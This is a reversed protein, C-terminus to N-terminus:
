VPVRDLRSSPAGALTSPTVRVGHAALDAVLADALAVFAAGDEAGGYVYFDPRVIMAAWGRADLFAGIRGEVERGCGPRDSRTLTVYRTAVGALANRAAQDLLAEADLDCSLVVFGSGGKVLDDLRIPQGDFGVAGHPSPFPPMPSVEGALFARDRAAAAEAEPICIIKGLFISMDIIQSVHPSREAQYTDLLREDARGDLVLALKWALNWADRLGSCMGQGMFPPMVHAADGAVM